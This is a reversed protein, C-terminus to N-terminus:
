DLTNSSKNVNIVCVTRLQVYNRTFTFVADANRLLSIQHQHSVPLGVSQRYNHTLSRITILQGRFSHTRKKKLTGRERFM